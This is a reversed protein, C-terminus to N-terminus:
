FSWGQAAMFGELNICPVNLHECVNPIKAAHPKWREQSVVTGHAAKACAIVFPDAVPTGRMRAKTSILMQFHLNSLITAVIGQEEVTPVTFIHKNAKCWDLVEPSVDQSELERFVERTSILLGASVLADLRPWISHFISPYFHQLERLSSTDFVHIM